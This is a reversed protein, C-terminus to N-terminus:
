YLVRGGDVMVTLGTVYSAADSVLFVAVEAIEGVEAFRKLLYRDAVEQDTIRGGRAAQGGRYLPTDVVGPCITNVRIGWAAYDVAMAKSLGIVAAKSSAYAAQGATPKLGVGSSVNLIVGGGAGRMREVAQRAMLWMGRVNINYTTDWDEVSLEHAAGVRMVGASNVLISAAGAQAWAASVAAADSVDCIISQSSGRPPDRVVLVDKDMAVVHAGRAALLEAIGRGIGSAAGTVVSTKGEM